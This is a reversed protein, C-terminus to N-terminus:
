KKCIYRVQEKNLGYMKALTGYGFGEDFHRRKIEAMEAASVQPKVQERAISEAVSQNIEEGYLHIFRESLYAAIYLAMEVVYRKQEESLEQTDREAIPYVYLMHLVMGYRYASTAIREAINRKCPNGSKKQKAQWKELEVQLYGFDPRIIDVPVENGHEDVTFCCLTRLRTIYDRIFEMDCADLPFPEKDGPPLLTYNFRRNTGNKTQGKLLKDVEDHTGSLLWNLFLHVQGYNANRDHVNYSDNDWSKRFISDEIKQHSMWNRIDSVEPTCITSHIGRNAVIQKDFLGRTLGQLATQIINGRVKKNLKQNDEEIFHGFLYEWITQIVSKGDGSEAVNMILFTPSQEHGNYFGRVRSFCMGGCMALLNILVMMHYRNSFPEALSTVLEPCHLPNPRRHKKFFRKHWSERNGGSAPSIPPVVPSSKQQRALIEEMKNQHKAVELRIKDDTSAHSLKIDNDTKVTDLTGDSERNADYKKAEAECAAQKEKKKNYSKVGLYGGGVLVIAAGIGWLVKWFISAPSKVEVGGSGVKVTVNDDKQTSQNKCDKSM